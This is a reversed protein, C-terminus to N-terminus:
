YAVGVVGTAVDDGQDLEVEVRYLYVGPPVVDGAADRGDWYGPHGAGPIDGVSRQYSGSALEGPELLAVPRGSLDHIAIHVLRAVDVKALVFEIVTGDNIGDGNPTLVPPSPRVGTLVRGRASTALLEWSRQRGTLPDVRRDEAANLPNSSGPSFLFARFAHLNSYTRTRLPLRLITSGRLPEAFVLALTDQSSHWSAVAVDAGEIQAEELMAESPVSIQLREVGQDGSGATLEVYCTVVTDRGMPALNPAAWARAGSVALGGQDYGIELRRFVPTRREDRSELNVRYQVLRGPEPAPFWLGGQRRPASWGSDPAAFDAESDGSRFQVTLDTRAPVEAEWDVRGYNLRASSSALGLPQSLFVGDEAYGDGYVEIEAVKPQTVANIQVIVIRVFRTWTPTFSVESREYETIDHLAAVESWRVQDDSVQVSYGRLSNSEYAPGKTLVRVRHVLFRERLDVFATFNLSAVPPEWATLLDGDVTEVRNAPKDIALNDGRIPRLSVGRTDGGADVGGAYGAVIEAAADSAGAVLSTDLRGGQVPYWADGPAETRWATGQPEVETWRWTLLSRDTTTAALLSDSEVTLLLGHGAGTGRSVVAVALHNDGAAVQVPYTQLRTWTTDGGVQQGNLYVSYSDVAAVRLRADVAAPAAFTARYWTARRWADQVWTDAPAPGALACGLSAAAILAQVACRVKM